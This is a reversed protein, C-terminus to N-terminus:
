KKNSKMSIIKVYIRLTFEVTSNLIPNVKLILVKLIDIHFLLTSKTKIKPLAFLKQFSIWFTPSFPFNKSHFGFLTSM